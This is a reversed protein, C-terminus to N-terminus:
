TAGTLDASAERDPSGSAALPQGEELVGYDQGGILRTTLMADNQRLHDSVARTRWVEGCPEVHMFIEEGFCGVPIAVCIHVSCEWTM